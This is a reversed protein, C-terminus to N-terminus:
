TSLPPQPSSHVYHPHSLGKTEELTVEKFERLGAHKATKAGRRKLSDCIKWYDKNFFVSYVTSDTYLTTNGEDFM